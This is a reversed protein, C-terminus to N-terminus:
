ASLERKLWARGFAWDDAVTLASVSLSVATEDVTLGAFCRLEIVKAIRVNFLTLTEIADNLAILDLGDKATTPEFGSLTV